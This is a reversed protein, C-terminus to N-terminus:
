LTMIFITNNHKKSNNITLSITTTINKNYDLRKKEKM